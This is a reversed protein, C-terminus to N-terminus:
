PEPDLGSRAGAGVVSKKYNMDTLPLLVCSTQPIGSPTQLISILFIMEKVPLSLFKFQFLWSFGYTNPPPTPTLRALIDSKYRHSDKKTSDTQVKLIGLPYLGNLIKASHTLTESRTSQILPPPPSSFFVFFCFLSM